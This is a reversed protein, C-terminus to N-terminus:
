ARNKAKAHTELYNIILNFSADVIDMAKTSKIKVANGYRKGDIDFVYSIKGKHFLVEIDQGDHTFTSIKTAMSVSQERIAQTAQYPSWGLVITGVVIGYKVFLLTFPHPNFAHNQTTSLIVPSVCACGTM